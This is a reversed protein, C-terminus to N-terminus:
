SHFWAGVQANPRTITYRKGLLTFVAKNVGPKFTIRGVVSNDALKAASAVYTSKSYHTLATILTSKWVKGRAQSVYQSIANDFRWNTLASFDDANFYLLNPGVLCCTHFLNEQWYTQDFVNSIKPPGVWPMIKADAKARYAARVINLSWALVYWPEKFRPDIQKLQGVNGYSSPAYYPASSPAVYQPHSNIEPVNVADAKTIPSDSFNCWNINNYRKYLPTILAARVAVDFLGYCGYNFWYLDSMNMNRCDPPFKGTAVLAKYRPDAYIASFDDQSMSWASMGSEIDFVVFDLDCKSAHLQEVVSGFHAKTAKIGEPWWLSNYKGQLRDNPHVFLRGQTEAGLLAVVRRGKPRQMLQKAAPHASGAWSVVLPVFPQGFRGGYPSWSFSTFPLIMRSDPELPQEARAVYVPDALEADFTDPDPSVFDPQTSALSVVSRFFRTFFISSEVM